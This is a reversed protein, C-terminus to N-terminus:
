SPAAAIQGRHQLYQWLLHATLALIIIAGGIATRISPIESHIIWVWLPGLVSELTGILATIASPVFPAGTAFLILGFGFSLGGFAFLLALNFKSVMLHGAMLGAVCAAILMGLCCAPIMRVDSHRRILVIALSYVVALLLALGNGVLSFKAGLSDSVMATIGIIVAGIAIWTEFAVREQFLVWGMLAAILPVGAQILLINAVTTFSLALVFCTSGIAFCLSVALGPLGMAQFLKWTGRWGFRLILFTLAFLAACAARWFVVVWIDSILIFRAIAGGFSWALVAGLVLSVGSKVSM